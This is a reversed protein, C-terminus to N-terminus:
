GEVAAEADAPLSQSPPQPRAFLFGQGMTCGLELLADRQVVTEIGEAFVDLKLSRALAVIARVCADGTADGGGLSAVFSRDIKLAQIPFRNLYGLSSYGTGFDDLAAQVGAAQLRVLMTCVQESNALLAGETVEICVRRPSLGCEAILRLLRRDFDGHQFHRPSVNINVFSTKGPMAALARCAKEYIVWDIAEICGSEEAVQLFAAPALVGRQPHNWRLLAEYGLVAGGALQVLPQLWPEFEDAALGCRLENELELVQMSERHLHQDFLEYRQKGRSKARYMAVDADRLVDDANAHRLEGHAIGISASCALDRGAIPMPRALADIIRQAVRAPTDETDLEELLIAFEDGGLRAVVDPTRVCENLREAVERLVADGVAHGLSDNIVKFRDVDLYLVAFGREPHRRLRALVRELRDRLYRRNPLATLADHVVEHKLRQEIREREAIQQRLERTREDVRAELQANAARLAETARRREMSNAIKHGVFSLLEQERQGYRVGADYSQVAVVGFVRGAGALPAGLWSEALEGHLVLEGDAALGLIQERHALLTHGNRIVYESLSKGFPRTEPQAQVRDRHYPFTLQRGDESLVAIYFNEAILLEGVIRHIDAFFEEYSADSVSLEAIRYLATQLQHARQREEVELALEANAQALEQTRQEVRAELEEQGQKRELATLIHNAVFALLAQDETTYCIGERYSQVVLAGRVESGRMMPVGMWDDSDAGHLRLPGSVQRRLSHTPGMLPRGDRILYWTLGREIRELPLYEETSPADDEVDAYYIFRIADREADYLAIYFNEAYMLGAVIRHLGRLMEPMDLESGAMDAIAFLARQLKDTQELRLLADRLRLTELEAAIRASALRAFDLWPGQELDVVAGEELRCLLLAADGESGGHLPLALDGGRGSRRASGAAVAADALAVRDASLAAHPHVQREGPWALSWLLSAERCGPLGVAADTLVAAVAELGRAALLARLAADAAQPPNNRDSQRDKLALNPMTMAGQDRDRVHKRGM